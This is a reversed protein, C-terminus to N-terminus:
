SAAADDGLQDPAPPVNVAPAAPAKSSTDENSSTKSSLLAFGAGLAIALASVLAVIIRERGSM